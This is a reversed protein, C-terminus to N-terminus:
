GLTPTVPSLNWFLQASFPVMLGRPSSQLYSISELGVPLNKYFCADSNCHIFESRNHVSHKHM